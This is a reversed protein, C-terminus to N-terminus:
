CIKNKFIEVLGGEPLKGKSLGAMMNSDLEFIEIGAIKYRLFVDGSHDFSFGAPMKSRLGAKNLMIDEDSSVIVAFAFKDIFEFINNQNLRKSKYMLDLQDNLEKRPVAHEHRLDKDIKVGSSFNELVKKVAGSSWYTPGFYKSWIGNDDYETAAWLLRDSLLFQLYEPIENDDDFIISMVKAVNMKNISNYSNM